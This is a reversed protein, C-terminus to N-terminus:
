EIPKSQDKLLPTKREQQSENWPIMRAIPIGDELLLIEFGARILDLLEDLTTEQKKLDITKVGM